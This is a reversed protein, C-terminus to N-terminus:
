RSAAGPTADSNKILEGFDEDSVGWHKQIGEVLANTDRSDQQRLQDIDSNTFITNGEGDVVALVIMRCKLDLLRNASLNGKKDRCTAEFASREGETLSRIRFKGWDPIEVVAFRRKFPRLAADRTIFGNSESM